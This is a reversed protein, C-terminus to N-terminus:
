DGGEQEDLRLPFATDNPGRGGTGDLRVTADDEDGSLLDPSLPMERRLAGMGASVSTWLEQHRRKWRETETRETMLEAALAVVHAELEQMYFAKGVLLALLVLVAVSLLVVALTM